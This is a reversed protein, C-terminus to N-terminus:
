KNERQMCRAHSTCDDFNDRNDRGDITPPPHVAMFFLQAFM